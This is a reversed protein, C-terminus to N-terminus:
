GCEAALAEDLESYTPFIGDLKAIELLKRIRDAPKVLILRRGREKFKGFYGVLEGIGTSDIYNIRELDVLVNGHGEALLKDLTQALFQASEGMRVVGEVRLVTHEGHNKKEVIM